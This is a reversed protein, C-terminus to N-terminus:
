HNNIIKILWLFQYIHAESFIFQHFFFELADLIKENFFFFEFSFNFISTWLFYYVRLKSMMQKKLYFTSLYAIVLKQPFIVLFIYLINKFYANEIFYTFIDMNLNPKWIWPNRFLSERDAPNILQFVNLIFVHLNQLGM